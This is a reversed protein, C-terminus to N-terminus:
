HCCPHIKHCPYKSVYGHHKNVCGTAALLVIAMVAFLIKKKMLVGELLLGMFISLDQYLPLGKELIGRNDQGALPKYPLRQSSSTKQRANFISIRPCCMKKLGSKYHFQPSIM